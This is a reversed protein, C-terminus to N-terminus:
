LGNGSTSQIFRPDLAPVFGLFGGDGEFVYIPQLYLQPDFSDFYGLQVNRIVATPSTGPNAIFGEGSQLLSWATEVSRLPYTHMQSYDVEHYSNDLQVVSDNSNGFAGSVIGQIAGQLGNPTFMRFQGDIPTRNLDVQVYDADSLSVAPQLEGGLARLYVTEASATAVDSPLMNASRLMNKVRNAAEFGEPLDANSLLEPRSLFDTSLLFNLDSINMELTSELPQTKTWRYTTSDLVEPAFLFDFEQAVQKAREDSLLGLNAQPMFFVKARDGFSPLGGTATELQYSSVEGNSPPFEIPPLVGFGVTPPPPPPPNVARWYNVAATLLFRGVILVVITIVGFKVVKRGIFTMDTLTPGTSSSTTGAM